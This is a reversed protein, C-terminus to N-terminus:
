IQLMALPSLPSEKSGNLLNTDAEQLFDSDRVCGSFTRFEWKVVGIDTLARDVPLAVM